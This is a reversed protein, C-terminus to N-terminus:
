PVLKTDASKRASLELLQAWAPIVGAIELLAGRSLWAIVRYPADSSSNDYIVLDDPVDLLRRLNELTRPFRAALKDDPVDHGGAHVRQIVRARSREASDLGVFHVVVFYGADRADRLVRVKEGVPDSLVTEFSFSKRAVFLAARVSEAIEAAEYARTAAQDGFERAAIDDANVFPIGVDALTIRRLTSKGAGNSGCFAVLLPQDSKLPM